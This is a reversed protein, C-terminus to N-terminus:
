SGKNAAIIYRELAMVMSPSEPTPAPINVTLDADEIAKRTVLGFAAIRTNNQKFDPFNHFLSKVDAPSFFVIVDYFINKLDSLDSTITHFMISEKFKIKHRELFEPIEKKRIDSCPFLFTENPHNKIVDLLETETNKGHFVKRKRLVIYKQLYFATGENICFYKMEPPMELKLESCVRFFNDVANRSNFIVATFELINIKQKKFEKSDIPSVEIFPRFDVKLNLKKALEYFPSKENEPKPQSVLISKVKL